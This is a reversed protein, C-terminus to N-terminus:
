APDFMSAVELEAQVTPLPVLTPREDSALREFEADIALQSESDLAPYSPPIM